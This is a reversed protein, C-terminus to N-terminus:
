NYLAPRNITVNAEAGITNAAVNIVFPLLILAAGIGLRALADKMYNQSPNDVYDRMKILGMITFGVGTVYSLSTLLTPIPGTNTTVSGMVDGVDLADQALAPNIFLLLAGTTFVFSSTFTVRLMSKLVM